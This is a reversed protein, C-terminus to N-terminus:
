GFSTYQGVVNWANGVHFLTLSEIELTNEAPEPVSNFIWKIPCTTGEIKITNAYFPKAKQELVITEVIVRNNTTPLNTFNATFDGAIDSHYFVSYKSCDHTVVGISSVFISLPEAIAGVTTQGSVSLDTANIYKVYASSTSLTNTALSDSRIGGYATITNYSTDTFLVPFTVTPGITGTYGTAGTLSATGPPGQIGTYGTVGTYGRPGDIGTPGVFGRLGTPGILDGSTDYMDCMTSFNTYNPNITTFGFYADRAVYTDYTHYFGDKNINAGVTVYDSINDTLVINSFVGQRASITSWTIVKGMCDRTLAANNINNYGSGEHVTQFVGVRASLTSFRLCRESCDCACANGDCGGQLANIDLAKLIENAVSSM